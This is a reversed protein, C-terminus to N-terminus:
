SLLARGLPSALQSLWGDSGEGAIFSLGLPLGALDSTPLVLQPVGALSALATLELTRARFTELEVASAGVRPAPGPTPPMFLLTGPSLWSRVRAILQNRLSDDRELSEGSEALRRAMEFRAEVAPSFHPAANRVWDGHMLWAEHAQLRRLAERLEAFGHPALQVREVAVGLTALARSLVDGLLESVGADCLALADEAILVREIARAPASEFLASAVTGFTHGDRALFGVTDFSPALPVVGETSLAGHSPRLGYIGCFAAPVRVSGATDTGIAFDCLGAAVAAASGCSSGGCLYGEARPNQPTGYHPNEGSLGYALEDLITVGILDAGAELLQQVIAAHREAPRHTRAWVPHGASSIHGRVAFVDKAAFTLGSLPGEALRPCAVRTEPVFAIQPSTM